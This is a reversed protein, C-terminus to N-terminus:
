IYCTHSCLPLVTHATPTKGVKSWSESCQLPLLVCWRTSCLEASICWSGSWRDSWRCQAEYSSVVEYVHLHLHPSCQGTHTTLMCSCVCGGVGTSYDRRYLNLLVLANTKKQSPPFIIVFSIPNTQKNKEKRKRVSVVSSTQNIWPISIYSFIGADMASPDIELRLFNEVNGGYWSGLRKSSVWKRKFDM